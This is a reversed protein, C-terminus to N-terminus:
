EPLDLLVLGAVKEASIQELARQVTRNRTVGSRAVVVVSDVSDHIISADCSSLLAPGDVVVYDFSLRWRVTAASFTPGHIGESVTSSPAVALVHLGTPKLETTYWVSDVRDRHAAFQSVLCHAPRFGFIEALRPRELSAEVLLVRCRGSEAMALALNAACTTKGEEEEASTVLIVRPDDQEALRRRLARFAASRDTSERQLIPLYTGDPDSVEVSTPIIQAPPVQSTITPVGTRAVYGRGSSVTALLMTTGGDRGRNDRDHDSTRVPTLAV